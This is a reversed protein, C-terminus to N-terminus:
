NRRKKEDSQITKPLRLIVAKTLIAMLTGSLLALPGLIIIYFFIEFTSFFLGYCFLQGFTHALSSFSSISYISGKILFYCLTTIALSFLSGSLSMFFQISFGNSVLPVLMVKLFLSFVYSKYDYFFLVFLLVLNALGLRFGPIPLFAPIMGEVSHLLLSLAVLISLVILRKVKM